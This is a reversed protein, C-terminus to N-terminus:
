RMARYYTLTGLKTPRRAVVAAEAFGAETMLETVPRAPGGHGHGHGHEPAAAHETRGLRHMVAHVGRMMLHLPTRAPGSRPDHDLDALHLSGGPALVRHAERLAAAQGDPPLHHLMLSSLVRDVTADAAPLEQAYGHEFTITAGERAAKRGALALADADPDVGVFRAGPVARAALLLVNGSGCGIELVRSGPTIAAQAVLQWYAAGVGAVRGFLDYFPLMAPSGMAPQFDKQLM